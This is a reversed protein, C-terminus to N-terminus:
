KFVEARSRGYSQAMGTMIQICHGNSDFQYSHGDIIFTKYYGQSDSAYMGSPIGTTEDTGFYYYQTSGNTACIQAWGSIIKGADKNNRALNDYQAFFWKGSADQFWGEVMDGQQDFYYFDAGIQVWNHAYMWQTSSPTLYLLRWNYGTNEWVFKSKQTAVVEQIEMESAPHEAAMGTLPAAMSIALALVAGLVHTRKM